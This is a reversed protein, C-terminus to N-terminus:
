WTVRRKGQVQAQAEPLAEAVTEWVDGFNWGSVM